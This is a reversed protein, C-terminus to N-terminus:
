NENKIGEEKRYQFPDLREIHIIRFQLESALLTTNFKFFDKTSKISDMFARPPKTKVLMQLQYCRDKTRQTEFNITKFSHAFDNRIKRILNLDEFVYQEILGMYYAINTKASMTSLPTMGDFLDRKTNGHEMFFALLLRELLEELLACSVLASARDTQKFIEAFANNIEEKTLEEPM